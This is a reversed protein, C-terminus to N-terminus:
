DLGEVLTISAIGAALRHQRAAQYAESNYCARAADLSPFVIVINRPRGLPGEMEEAQGGRVLFQAGHAEFAPRAADVYRQYGEPETVEAHAIWYGKPM